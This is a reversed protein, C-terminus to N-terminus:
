KVEKKLRGIVKAFEQSYRREHETMFSKWEPNIKIAEDVSLQMVITTQGQKVQQIRLQPNREVQMKLSNYAQEMEDKYRRQLSEISNLHLELMPTNQNEKLTETALIGEKRKQFEAVASGLNLSDILKLQAERLLSGKGQERYRKLRKWLGESDLEGKYFESLLSNLRESDRMQEKEEPTAEGIRALRERIIPPLKEEWQAM